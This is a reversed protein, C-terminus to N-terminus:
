EVPLDRIRLSFQNLETSCYRVSELTFAESEVSLEAWHNLEVEANPDRSFSQEM